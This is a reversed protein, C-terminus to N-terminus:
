SKAGARSTTSSLFAHRPQTVTVCLWAKGTTGRGLDELAVLTAVNKNPYKDYDVKSHVDEYSVPHFTVAHTGKHFKLLCRSLKISHHLHAKSMLQFASCLHQLVCMPDTNINLVRTVCLLRDMEQTVEDDTELSADM